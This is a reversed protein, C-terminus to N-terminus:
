IRNASALGAEEAAPRRGFYVDRVREDNRVSDPTGVALVKGADLVTITHSIDMVVNLVHEVLVVTVGLERNIREVLRKIVDIRVISLGAAPEDMLILRPGGAIARAIEVLRMQGGSLENALRNALDGAGVFDLAAYAREVHAREESLFSPSRTVISLPSASSRPYLGLLVNELVSLGKVLHLNQYTRSVGLGAVSHEARQSLDSGLVQIVGTDPREYASILNILTSKGSGNPGIIGHIRGGELSLSLGDIARVGGFSKSVDIIEVAAPLPTASPGAAPAFLELRGASDAAMPQNAPVHRQERLAPWVKALFGYVGYPMFLLSLLLVGGFIIEWYGAFPRLIELGFTVITAGLVSGLIAGLGGVVVMMFQFMMAMVHFSAPDIVSVVGGYLAGALGAIFASYAFTTIKARAVDIGLGAAIHPQDSICLLSRGVPSAVVNYLSRLAVAAALLTLYFMGVSSKLGAWSFDPHSLIMGSAGRTLQGGHIFLWHVFMSFSLTVIALYFGSLRLAPLAVIAGSAAAFVAGGLVAIPYIVGVAAFLNGMAYAGLGLLAVHGLSFIGLYGMVLNLSAAILVHVLLISIVHLHYDNGIWPMVALATFGLAYIMLTPNPISSAPRASTDTM